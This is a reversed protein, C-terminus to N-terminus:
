PSPPAPPPHSEVWGRIAEGWLASYFGSWLGALQAASLLAVLGVAGWVVARLALLGGREPLPLFGSEVRDLDRQVVIWAALVLLVGPLVSCALGGVSLLVGGVTLSVVLATRPRAETGFSGFLEDVRESM